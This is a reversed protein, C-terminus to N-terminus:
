RRVLGVLLGAVAGLAVMITATVWTGPQLTVYLILALVAGLAACDRLWTNKMNPM